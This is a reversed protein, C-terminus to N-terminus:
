KILTEKETLGIEYIRSKTVNVLTDTMTYTFANQKCHKIVVISKTVKVVIGDIAGFKYSGKIFDGVKIENTMNNENQKINM